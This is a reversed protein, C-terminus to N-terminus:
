DGSRSNSAAIPAPTRVRRGAEGLAKDPLGIIAFEPTQPSLDAEVEVLDGRVGTLAVAWTRAVTV